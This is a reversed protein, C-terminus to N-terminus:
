PAEGRAIAREAGGARLILKKERGVPSLFYAANTPVGASGPTGKRKPAGHTPQISLFAADLPLM